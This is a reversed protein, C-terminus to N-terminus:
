GSAKAFYAAAKKLINREETLRKLETRLRRIEDDKNAMRSTQVGTGPSSQKMWLYLSYCSMGLREAVEAVRHGKETVQRVAERKFEETYRERSM